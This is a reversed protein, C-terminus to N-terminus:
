LNNAIEFSRRIIPTWQDYSIGAIGLRNHYAYRSTPHDQFMIITPKGSFYYRYIFEKYEDDVDELDIFTEKITREVNSGWFFILDPSLAKVVRLFPEIFSKAKEEDYSGQSASPKYNQYFNYFSISNWFLEREKPDDIWRGEFSSHFYNYVKYGNDTFTPGINLLEEICYQSAKYNLKPKRPNEPFPCLEELAFKKSCQLCEERYPCPHRDKDCYHSAGVALVKKGKYGKEYDDGIWPDFFGLDNLNDQNFITKM